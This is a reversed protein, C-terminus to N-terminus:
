SHKLKHKYFKPLNVTNAVNANPKLYILIILMNTLRPMLQFINYLVTLINSLSHYHKLDIRVKKDKDDLEVYFAKPEANLKKTLDIMQANNDVAASTLIKVEDKTLTRTQTRQRTETKNNEVTKPKLEVKHVERTVNKDAKKPKSDTSKYNLSSM